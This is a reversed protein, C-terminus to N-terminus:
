FSDCLRKDAIDLSWYDSAAVGSAIGKSLQALSSKIREKTQKEWDGDAPQELRVARQRLEEIQQALEALLGERELPPSDGLVLWLYKVRVAELLQLTGYWDYDPSPTLREWRRVEDLADRSFVQALRGSDRCAEAGTRRIRARSIAGGGSEGEKREAIELFVLANRLLNDSPALGHGIKDIALYYASGSLNHVSRLYERKAIPDYQILVFKQDSFLKYMNELVLYQTELDPSKCDESIIDGCWGIRSLPDNLDSYTEVLEKRFDSGAIFDRIKDIPVETSWKVRDKGVYDIAWRAVYALEVTDGAVHALIIADGRMGILEKKVYHRLKGFNKTRDGPGYLAIRKCAQVVNVAYNQSLASVVADSIKNEPDSDFRPVVITVSGPTQNSTVMDRMSCLLPDFAAEVGAKAADRVTESLIGLGGLCAASVGAIM